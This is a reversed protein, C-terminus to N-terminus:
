KSGKQNQQERHNLDNAEKLANAVHLRFASREPEGSPEHNYILIEKSTLRENTKVKELTDKWTPLWGASPSDVPALAPNEPELMINRCASMPGAANCGLYWSECEENICHLGM